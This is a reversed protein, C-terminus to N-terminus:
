RAELEVHCLAENGWTDWGLRQRRAFLELYPGPSVQEVLDLFAEPKASHKGRPWEYWRGPARSQVGRANLDDVRGDLEDGYGLIVKLKEWQAVTPVSARHPLDSLWWGAMDTTGMTENVDRKTLGLEKARSSLLRTFEVAECGGRQRAYIIFETDSPFAGGLGVGYRPKCWTLTASPEFGWARVVGFSEELRENITWLYLHAGAAVMGSVPLSRIEDMTMTPYPCAKGAEYGFNPPFDGIEWPPDVVITRYKMKLSAPRSPEANHTVFHTV